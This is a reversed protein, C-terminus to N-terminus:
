CDGLRKGTSKVSMTMSQGAMNGEMHASGQMSNGTVTMSGKFNMNVGEAQSCVMDYNMTDGDIKTNVQCQDKPMGQMQSSPDLESERICNKQTETRTGMLSSESVTTTEWMGPTIPLGEAWATAHVIATFLALAVIITRM